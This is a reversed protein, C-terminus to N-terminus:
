ALLAGLGARDKAAKAGSLQDFHIREEPVGAELLVDYQAQGHQDTTSVRVYGLLLGM